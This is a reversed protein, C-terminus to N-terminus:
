GNVAEDAGPTSVIQGLNFLPAKDTVAVTTNETMILMPNRKMVPLRSGNERDRFGTM